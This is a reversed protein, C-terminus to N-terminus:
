SARVQALLKLLFGDVPPCEAGEAPGPAVAWPEGAAARAVAEAAAALPVQPPPLELHLRQLSRCHRSRNPPSPSSSPQNTHTRHLYIVAPQCASEM